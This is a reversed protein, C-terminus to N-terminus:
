PAIADFWGNGVLTLARFIVSACGPGWTEQLVPNLVPMVVFKAANGSQMNFAAAQSPIATLTVFLLSFVQFVRIVASSKRSLSQNKPTILDVSVENFYSM